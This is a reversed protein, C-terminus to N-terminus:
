SGSVLQESASSTTVIGRLDRTVFHGAAKDLMSHATDNGHDKSKKGSMSLLKELVELVKENSRLANQIFKTGDEGTTRDPNPASKLFYDLEECASNLVGPGIGTSFFRERAIQLSRQGYLWVEHCKLLTGSDFAPSAPCADVLTEPIEVIDPVMDDVFSRLSGENDNPDTESGPPASESKAHPHAASDKRIPTPVAKLSAPLQGSPVACETSARPKRHSRRNRKGKKPAAAVAVSAEGFALDGPSLDEGITADSAVLSGCDSFSKKGCSHRSSLDGCSLDEGGGAVRLAQSDGLDGCSLAEDSGAKAEAEGGTSYVMDRCDAPGGYVDEYCFNSNCALSSELDGCSLDEGDGACSVVAMSNNDNEGSKPAVGAFCGPTAYLVVSKYRIPSELALIAAQVLQPSVERASLAAHIAVQAEQLLIFTASSDCRPLMVAAFRPRDALRLAHCQLPRVHHVLLALRPFLM